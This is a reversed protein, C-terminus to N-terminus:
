HVDVSIIKLELAGQKYHYEKQYEQINTTIGGPNKRHYKETWCINYFANWDHLIDGSRRNKKEFNHKTNKSIYWSAKIWKTSNQSDQRSVM